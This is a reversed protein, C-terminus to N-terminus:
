NSAPKPLTDLYGAIWEAVVEFSYPDWIEGALEALSRLHDTDYPREPRGDMGSFSLSLKWWMFMAWM